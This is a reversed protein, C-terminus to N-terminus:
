EAVPEAPPQPARLKAKERKAQAKLLDRIEGLLKEQPTPDPPPDDAKKRQLRQVGKVMFFIAISIILFTIIANILSGYRLAVGGAKVFEDVNGFKAGVPPAKLVVYSENFDVGSTLLGLFPMLIWDVLGSVIKGFAGGMIVGVALDVVNGKAIFAKFEDIM